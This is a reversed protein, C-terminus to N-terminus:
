IKDEYSQMFDLDYGDIEDEQGIDLTDVKEIEM